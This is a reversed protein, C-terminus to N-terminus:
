LPLVISTLRHAQIWLFRCFRCGFDLRFLGFDDRREDATGRNRVGRPPGIHVARRKVQPQLGVGGKFGFQVPGLPFVPVGFSQYPVRGPDNVNLALVPATAANVLPAGCQANAKRSNMLIGVVALIGVAALVILRNRLTYM